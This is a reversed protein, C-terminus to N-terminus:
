SWCAVSGLCPDGTSQRPVRQSSRRCSRGCCTGPNSTCSPRHTAQRRRSRRSRHSPVMATPRWDWAQGATCCRRTAGATCSGDWTAWTRWRLTHLYTHPCTLAVRGYSSPTLYLRQPICVKAVADALRVLRHLRHRLTGPTAAAWGQLLDQHQARELAYTSLLYAVIACLQYTRRQLLPEACNFPSLLARLHTVLADVLPSSQSHM